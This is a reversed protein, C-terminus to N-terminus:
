RADNRERGEEAVSRAVVEAVGWVAVDRVLLLARFGAVVAVLDAFTGELLAALLVEFVGLGQPAFPSLFGVGWAVMFAGQTPVLAVDLGFGRAYVWFVAGILLWYGANVAMLGLMSSRAMPAPLATGRRGAVWGLLRNLRPTAALLAVLLVPGLWRSWGPLDDRVGLLTSGLALAVSVSMALEVTGTAALAPLGIGRRALLAARGAAFWVGGPVYRTLLARCTALVVVGPRTPEGLARLARHWFWAQPVLTLTSAVLAVVLWGVRVQGLLDGIAERRDVLLWGFGVAMVVVWAVTAVRRMRASM